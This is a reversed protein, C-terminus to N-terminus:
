ILPDFCTVPQGKSQDGVLELLRHRSNLEVVCGVIENISDQYHVFPGAHLTGLWKQMQCKCSADGSKTVFQFLRSDGSEVILM